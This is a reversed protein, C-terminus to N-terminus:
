KDEIYKELEFPSVRMCTKYIDRYLNVLKNGCKEHKMKDLVKEGWHFRAAQKIDITPTMWQQLIADIHDACKVIRSELNERAEYEEYVEVLDDGFDIDDLLWKLAEGEIDKFTGRGLLSKVFTGIEGTVAEGTDHLISYELVKQIDVAVGKRSLYKALFYSIIAVMHSHAAVTDADNRKMGDQIYGQRPLEKLRFLVIIKQLFLSSEVFSNNLYNPRM